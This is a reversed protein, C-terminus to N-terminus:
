RRSAGARPGEKEGTTEIVEFDGGKLTRLSELGQIRQDPAVSIRWDGGNDAVIMGHRKLAEAIARAHRPLHGTKVAAKLRFRQGMAPVLPDTVTSAYHTAPYICAKRSRVVTFRLAHDIVGRECEDFRVVAPLLPLGAADSSTWGAPRLRNSTLDFIAACGAEWGGAGRRAHYFEFLRGAYPDLVILHRDGGGERQITDLPTADMGWGEIPANDPLPYPGPDSEDPVETLKVPVRPQGPPVIVFAMDRNVGLPKDAGIGAVMRASDALLPRRSIDECWASDAPVLRIAAMIQDAQPTNFLVPTTLRPQRGPRAPADAAALGATAALLVGTLLTSIRAM